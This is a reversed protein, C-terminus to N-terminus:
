QMLENRFAWLVWAPVQYYDGDKGKRLSLSPADEKWDVVGPCAEQYRSTIQDPNLAQRFYDEFGERPRLVDNQMRVWETRSVVDQLTDKHFAVISRSEPFELHSPEVQPSPGSFLRRNVGWIVLASVLLFVSGLFLRYFLTTRERM